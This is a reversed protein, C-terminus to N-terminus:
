KVEVRIPASRVTGIWAGEPAQAGSNYVARVTSHGKERFLAPDIACELVCSHSVDLRVLGNPASTGQRLSVGSGDIPVATDNIILTLFQSLDRPKGLYLPALADTELTLTWKLPAGPTITTANAPDLTLRV